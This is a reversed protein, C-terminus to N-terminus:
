EELLAEVERLLAPVDRQAVQLVRSHDVIDYGHALIIRFGINLTLGRM